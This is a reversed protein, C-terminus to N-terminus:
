TNWRTQKQQKWKDFYWKAKTRKIPAVSEFYLFKESNFRRAQITCAKWWGGKSQNGLYVQNLVKNEEIINQTKSKLHTVFSIYSIFSSPCAPQWNTTNKLGLRLDSHSYLIDQWPLGSLHTHSCHTESKHPDDRMSIWWQDDHRTVLYGLM